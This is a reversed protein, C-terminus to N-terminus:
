EQWRVEYLRVADAIGKLVHAGRDEFAARRHEGEAATGRRPRCATPPV